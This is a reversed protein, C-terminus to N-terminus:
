GELSTPWQVTVGYRVLTGLSGGVAVMFVMARLPIIQAFKKQDAM